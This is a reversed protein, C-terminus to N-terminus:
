LEVMRKCNGTKWHPVDELAIMHHKNAIMADAKFLKVFWKLFSPPIDFTEFFQIHIHYGRSGTFFSKGKIDLLDLTQKAMQVREKFSEQTENQNIDFDLGIENRFLTRNNAKALRWAEKDLNEWCYLVSTHKTWRGDPYHTAILFDGYKNALEQLRGIREREEQSFSQIM